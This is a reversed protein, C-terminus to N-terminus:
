AGAGDRSVRRVVYTRTMLDHLARGDPQFVAMLFGAGMTLYSALYSLTRLFSRDLPLPENSSFVRVELKFLRKGPTSGPRAHLFTYYPFWILIELIGEIIQTQFSSLNLTGTLYSALGFTCFYFVWGGLMILLGDIMSSIGRILFGRFGIVPQWEDSSM